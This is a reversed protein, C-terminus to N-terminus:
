LFDSGGILQTRMPFHASNLLSINQEALRKQVEKFQIGLIQRAHEETLPEFLVVEDVRNLFEPRVQQKLLAMVEEKTEDLIIQNNWGEMQGM